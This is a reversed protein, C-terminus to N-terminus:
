EWRTRRNLRKADDVQSLVGSPEASQSVNKEKRGDKQGEQQRKWEGVGGPAFIGLVVLRKVEQVVYGGRAGNKWEVVGVALIGELNISTKMAKSRIKTAPPPSKIPKENVESAM